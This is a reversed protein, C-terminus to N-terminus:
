FTSLSILRLYDKLIIKTKQWFSVNRHKFNLNLEQKIKMSHWKKVSLSRINDDKKYVGFLITPLLGKNKAIIEADILEGKLPDLIKHIQITHTRLQSHYLGLQTSSLVFDWKQELVKSASFIRDIINPIEESRISEFPVSNDYAGRSIKLHYKHLIDNIFDLKSQAWQQKSEGIYEFVVFVGNPKLARNVQLLLHELNIIHHLISKAIIIDYVNEEFHISNLDAFKCACKAEQANRGIIDINEFSNVIGQEVLYKEFRANGGGLILGKNFVGLYQIFDLWDRNKSIVIRKGNFLFENPLYEDADVEANQQQLRWVSIERKLARRYIFRKPDVVWEDNNKMTNM